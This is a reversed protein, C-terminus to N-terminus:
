PRHPRRPSDAEGVVSGLELFSLVQELGTTVVLHLGDPTFRLGHPYGVGSLVAIPDSEPSLTESNAYVLVTGDGHNSAALWRRDLSFVIGDPTGLGKRLKVGRYAVRFGVSPELTYETVVHAYDNCVLM